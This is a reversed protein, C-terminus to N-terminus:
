GLGLKKWEGFHRLNEPESLLLSEYKGLVTILTNKTIM